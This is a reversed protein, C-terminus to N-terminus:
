ILTLDNHSWRNTFLLEHVHRDAGIYQIHQQRNFLTQFASLDSGAAVAPAAAALSLDNHTWSNVYLLEHVHADAGVYLVHQQNNFTTVLGALASGALAPPAGALRTLDNHRWSDSYYIEQVHGDPTLYNVHQQKNTATQYASLASGRAAVPPPGVMLTLDNHHWSGDFYLEHVHNDSTTYNIHQQNNFDTTYGTLPSNLTAPPATALKSLDNHHWSGDFYIEHIHGDPTIYNVHQQNNFNTPYSALRSRAVAPPPAGSAIRTLDNHGWASGYVLEHVHGDSSLFNVHHQNNFFTQYGNIDGAPVASPAGVLTTLDKHRWIDTFFLEHIHGDAGVFNIHQQNNFDTTYSDLFRGPANLIPQFACLDQKDSWETQVLFNGLRTNTGSCIDGIENGTDADWWTNGAPDTVAECFEHSSIVTMNDLLVSAFGCNACNAFPMVAYFVRDDYSGHYACMKDCSKKGDSGTSTVNPPLYIFYLTNATTAPVTHASIWARLTSQIQGDDISRGSATPTGPESNTVHVSPLRSGHRIHQGAVGYEALLDMLTSTVIFDFFSDVSSALTANAGTAWAAGWYIPVVQVSQIVSGGHNSVFPPAAGAAAATLGPAPFSVPPTIRRPRTSATTSPTAM